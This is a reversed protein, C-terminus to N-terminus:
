NLGSDEVTLLKMDMQNLTEIVEKGRKSLLYAKDQDQEILDCGKLKRLHFALKTHDKIKLGDVLGMFQTPGNNYLFNVVRRRIPNAVAKVVSCSYTSFQEDLDKFKDIYNAENVATLISNTLENWDFPKPVYDNAGIKMAEIAGKISAYATMMIIVVGPKTAKIEKLVELGGIGGLMIDLLVADYNKKKILELAEEGSEVTDARFGRKELMSKIIESLKVEDDVVLVELMVRNEKDTDM